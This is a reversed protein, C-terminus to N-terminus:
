IEESKIHKKHPPIKKGVFEGGICYISRLLFRKNCRPCRAIKKNNPYYPIIEDKEVCWVKKKKTKLKM